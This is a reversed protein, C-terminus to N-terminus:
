AEAAPRGSHTFGPPVIERKAMLADESLFKTSSWGGDVALVQGNIWGAAPSALFVIAQAVDDATGHRESPTMDYNMRRFRDDGLRAATMDTPVVGPAVANSRIGASGYQCAMHSTLGLLGAKAASYAGGRLGGLVAYTSSVNVINSGSAFVKLAERALRFPARLMLGLFYDLTEDDTEHVPKPSGIGANNVLCDLRGFRAMAFEVARAPADDAMLDLSLTAVQGGIKVGLKDIEALKAADRGIGVVAVGSELFRQATALGIGSGAGTILAVRM